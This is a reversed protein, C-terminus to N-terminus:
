QLITELIRWATSRRRSSEFNAVADVCTTGVSVNTVTWRSPALLISPRASSQIAAPDNEFLAEGRVEGAAGVVGEGVAAFAEADEVVGSDCRAGQSGLTEHLLHGHEVGVYVLAVTRRGDEPSVRVDEGEGDVARLVVGEM